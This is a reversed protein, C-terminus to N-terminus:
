SGFCHNFFDFFAATTEECHRCNLLYHIFRRRKRREAKGMLWPHGCCIMMRWKKKDEIDMEKVSVEKMNEKVVDLFRRKPRGRRRQIFLCVFSHIFLCLVWDCIYSLFIKNINIKANLYNIWKRTNKCWDLLIKNMQEVFIVM